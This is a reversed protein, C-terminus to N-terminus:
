HVRFWIHFLLVMTFFVHQFRIISFTALALQCTFYFGFFVVTIDTWPLFAFLADVLLFVSEQSWSIVDPGGTKLVSKGLTSM